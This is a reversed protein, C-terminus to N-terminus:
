MLLFFFLRLFPSPIKYKICIYCIFSKMYLSILIYLSIIHEATGLQETRRVRQSGMSQLRGLEETWPFRRAHISSHTAM